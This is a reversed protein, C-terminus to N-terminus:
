YYIHMTFVVVEEISFVRTEIAISDAVLGKNLFMLLKTLASCCMCSAVEVSTIQGLKYM